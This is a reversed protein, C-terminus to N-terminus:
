QRHNTIRGLNEVLASIQATKIWQSARNVILAAEFSAIQELEVLGNARLTNGTEVIDVLLDALGVLPALEVSGNLYIVEVSLGQQQFHARALNPYKSAIRLHLTQKLNLGRQEPSGALVLRCRGFGLNLPELVDSQSERLVDQGVIGVDAAGYQVYTPVDTPKVLLYQVPAAPDPGLLKRTGNGVITADYGIQALLAQAKPLLRGKPLAITLSNQAM